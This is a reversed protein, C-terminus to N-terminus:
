PSKPANGNKRKSLSNGRDNAFITSHGGRQLLKGLDEAMDLYRMLFSVNVICHLLYSEHRISGLRLSDRALQERERRYDEIARNRMLDTVIAKSAKCKREFKDALDSLKDEYFTTIQHNEKILHEIEHTQKDLQKVQQDCKFRLQALEQELKAPTVLPKFYDEITRRAPPATTSPASAAAKPPPSPRKPTNNSSKPRPTINDLMELTPAVFGDGDRSVSNTGGAVTNASTLSHKASQLLIRDYRSKIQRPTRNLHGWHIIQPWDTGFRSVGEEIVKDEDVSFRINKKVDESMSVSTANTATAASTTAISPLLHKFTTTHAPSAGGELLSDQVLVMGRNESGRAMGIVDDNMSDTKHRKVSRDDDVDMAM